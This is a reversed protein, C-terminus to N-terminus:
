HIEHRIINLTVIAGTKHLIRAVFGSPGDNTGRSSIKNSPADSHMCDFPPTVAEVHHQIFAEM